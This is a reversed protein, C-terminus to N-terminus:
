EVWKAKPLNLYYGGKERDVRATSLNSWGYKAATFPPTKGACEYLDAVTAFQYEDIIMVLQDLVAEADGRDDFAIDSYDGERVDAKAAPRDAKTKSYSNYPVFSSRSQSSGGSNRGRASDGFIARAFGEKVAEYAMDKLSPLLVNMVVHTGASKLDEGGFNEAIRTGLPKKRESANGSIVKQVKPRAPEEPAKADRERHSNGPYNMKVKQESRTEEATEATM